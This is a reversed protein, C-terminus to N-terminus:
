LCKRWEAEVREVTKKAGETQRRMECIGVEVEKSLSFAIMPTVSSTDNQRRIRERRGSSRCRERDRRQVAEERCATRLAREGSEGRRRWM